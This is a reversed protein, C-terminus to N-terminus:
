TGAKKGNYMGTRNKGCDKCYMGPIVQAHYYNDHYGTTLKEEKECHECKIIATFDNRHETLFKTIHM